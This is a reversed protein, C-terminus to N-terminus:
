RRGGRKQKQKKRAKQRSGQQRQMEQMRKMQEAQKDALNQLIGSFPGCGKKAKPEPEDDKVPWRKKIFQQEFIGMTSQTIMYLSLGAAYNYLFFGMVVPMFMMMRQMRAQQEDAPKPMSRQQLIWSVVMLIPLLNFYSLDFTTILLPVQMGVEFMRDPQSLDTIWSLFPAQRLEPSTRLAAFLGIFIPIQFFVPLCGGLPPFAKEEQMIRAQEQRLKQPDDAYKKKLEDLKPQVRKMKKQYRAMATQSRRNLPFLLARICLTLLIISWGWNGTISEFFGLGALLVDGIGSFFGLDEKVVLAHPGFDAEFTERQKPGAYVVYRWTRAEGEHPVALVLDVEADVHILSKELPKGNEFAWVADPVRRYRAGAMSAIGLEDAGRMLFAFYKNHTGAFALPGVVDLKGTRDRAADNRSVSELEAEEGPKGPDMPGAAVATPEAYFRDGLEFPTCSAPTFQFQRTGGEGAQENEIELELDLEWSGPRHTVRKTFVVGTGPAHRFEVGIPRGAGDTLTEAVWLVEELPARVLARSSESTRWRLSGTTGAGTDVPVVVPSWNVHDARAAEDLDARVYYGDLRLELLRAGRNTFRAWYHGVEGPLGLELVIEEESEAVLPAFPPPEQEPEEAAEPAPALGAEGAEGAPQAVSPDAEEQKPPNFVSYAFLVLFSLFLALPLRKEM